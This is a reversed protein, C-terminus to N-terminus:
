PHEGHEEDGREDHSSQDGDEEHDIRLAGRM